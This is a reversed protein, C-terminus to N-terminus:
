RAAMFRRVRREVLASNRTECEWIIEVGWGMRRLLRINRLDRRRNGRLKPVWFALRSKPIRAQACGPHRHWFCGHVFLVKKRAPFALDPKGPLAAVHLRYRFGARYVLRRVALEPVTDRGRVLAMRASRERKSLTDVAEGAIRAPRLAQM